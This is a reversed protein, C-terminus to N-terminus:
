REPPVARRFVSDLFQLAEAAVQRHVAARDIQVHRGCLDAPISAAIRLGNETCVPLFAFHGATRLVTTKVGAIARAYYDGHARPILVEDDMTYVLHVPRRISALIKQETGPGMAPTM